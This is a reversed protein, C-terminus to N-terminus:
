NNRSLKALVQYMRRSHDSRPLQYAKSSDGRREIKGSTFPPTGLYGMYTYLLHNGKVITERVGSVQFRPM